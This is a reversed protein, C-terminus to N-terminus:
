ILRATVYQWFRQKYQRKICVKTLTFDKNRGSMLNLFNKNLPNRKENRIKISHGEEHYHSTEQGMFFEADKYVVRVKHYEKTDKKDASIYGVDQYEDTDTM